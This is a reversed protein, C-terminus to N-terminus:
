KRFIYEVIEAYTAASWSQALCGAPSFNDASSLESSHGAIGNWLIDNTGASIIAKIEKDFKKADVKSLAMAAINNIFFWSDGNHYSQDPEECGRYQGCFNPHDKQLSALGGWPLWLAKSSSEFCKVWEHELLLESYFYYALFINPRITKDLVKGSHGAVQRSSANALLYNEERPEISQSFTSSKDGLGGAQALAGASSDALIAGDWFNERVAKLLEYEKQAYKRDKTLAYALKLAGLALAQIEISAGCRGCGKFATDMWTAKPGGFVLGDKMKSPLTEDVYKLLLNKVRLKEEESFAGKRTLDDAVRFFLGETDAASSLAEAGKQEYRDLYNLFIAREIELDLQPASIAFDRFWFQAFWPIGAYLGVPSHSEGFVALSQLSFKAALRAMKIEEGEIPVQNAAVFDNFKESLLEKVREKDKLVARATKKAEEKDIGASFVFEKGKLAGANFVYREYPPDRRAEDYAYKRPEWEGKREFAYDKGAVALFYNYRAVDGQKKAYSIVVCGDEESIDYFRGDSDNDFIEKCDLVLSFAIPNNLEYILSDSRPDMFFREVLGSSREVEFNWFNNKARKIALSVGLRVQAITKLMKDGGKFYFGQYRSTPNEQWYFFGGRKNTLLFQPSGAIDKQIKHNGIQHLLLM